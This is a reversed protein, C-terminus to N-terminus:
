EALPDAVAGMFIISNSTTERIIYIFPHDAKFVTPDLPMSTLGIDVITAAAAETGEENTEIFAQHTVDNILLDAEETINSFDALDTFAVGMGMSSLIEKLKKKYGYKFRPIFIDTERTAMQQLWGTFAADTLSSLLAPIGDAADPLIIDMVFNGQGYPFEALRFGDGDYIKFDETLKMMPVDEPDSGSKYFPEEETEKEDFQLKWKGKFYIANIILMVTNDELKDVMEKILGNTNDEIWENIKDPAAPDTISFEKSEASYYEELIDIFSQKPSIRDETWVSNAINMIVRKDVALLAETLDRYSDNIKEPTIGNVRLAELMAERTPGAAGNLTMSLAYSISLPSIIINKGSGENEMIRNFIDFAFSNESEVLSIQESTLEIEVPDTPLNDDPSKTCRTFLFTISSLVLVSLLINKKM